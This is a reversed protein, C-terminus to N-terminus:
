WTTYGGDVVLDHGTVYSAADSALFLIASAIEAPQGLRGMPTRGRWGDADPRPPDQEIGGPSVANARIGRGAYTAALFRTFGVVGAKVFFYHPRFGDVGRPYLRADASVQGLVSAVTVISGRDRRLMDVLCRQTVRFWGTADVRMSAEWDEVPYREVHGAIWSIANNVLIDVRGHREVIRAVAADISGVDGQDLRVADAQGGTARISTALGECRELDRSAVVVTAGAAAFLRCTASGLNGSGGTVIAVRDDLRFRDLSPARPAESVAGRSMAEREDAGSDVVRNRMGIDHDPIRDAATL